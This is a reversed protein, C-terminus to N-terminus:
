KIKILQQEKKTSSIKNDSQDLSNGTFYYNRAVSQSKM